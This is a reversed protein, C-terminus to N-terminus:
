SLVETLSIEDYYIKTYCTEEYLAHPQPRESAPITLKLGGGGGRPM